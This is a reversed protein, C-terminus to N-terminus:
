TETTENAVADEEVAEHDPPPSCLPLKPVLSPRTALRRGYSAQRIRAAPHKGAYVELLKLIWVYTYIAKSELQAHGLM